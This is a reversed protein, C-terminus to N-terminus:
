QNGMNVGPWKQIMAIREVNFNIVHAQGQHTTLEAYVLAKEVNSDQVLYFSIQYHEQGVSKVTMTELDIYFGQQTATSIASKLLEGTLNSPATLASLIPQVTNGTGIKSSSAFSSSLLGLTISLVLFMKKM